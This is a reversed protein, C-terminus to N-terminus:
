RARLFLALILACCQIYHYTAYLSLDAAACCQLYESIERLMYIFGADCIRNKKRTECLRDTERM